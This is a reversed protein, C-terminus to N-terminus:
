NVEQHHRAYLAVSLLVAVCLLPLLFVLNEMVPYSAERKSSMQNSVHMTGVPISMVIGLATTVYLQRMLTYNDTEATHIEASWLTSTLGQWSSNGLFTMSVNAPQSQGVFYYCMEVHELDVSSTLNITVEITELKQVDSVGLIGVLLNGTQICSVPLILGGGVFSVSTALVM